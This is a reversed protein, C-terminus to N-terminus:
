RLTTESQSYSEYLQLVDDASLARNYILVEDIGGDFHRGTGNEMAGIAWDKAVEVSGQSKELSALEEGNRYLRWHAGDCTGALHVWTNLDAQADGGSVIEDEGTWSGVEYQADHIRLVVERSAESDFGHALINRYSDTADPRIWAAITITGTFNLAEPNELDIWDDGDFDLAPQDGRKAWTAGHITGDHGNQSGDTAVEGTGEDLSWQGLLTEDIAEPQPQTSDSFVGVKFYRFALSREAEELPGNKMFLGVRSNDVSSNFEGFPQWESDASQKYFVKYRDSEGNETVELKLFVDEIHKVPPDPNLFSVGSDGVNGPGFGQVEVGRDDWENVALSWEMGDQSGGSGDRDPYVVIGGIRPRRGPEGSLRMRTEAFWTQGAEVKPSTVYAIPANDREVWLDATTTTTLVLEDNDEDLTVSAVQPDPVDLMLGPIADLGSETFDSSFHDVISVTTSEAADSDTHESPQAESDGDTESVTTDNDPAPEVPRKGGSQLLVIVIILTVVGAGGYIVLEKWWTKLLRACAATIRSVLSPGTKVKPPPADSPTSAKKAASRSSKPKDKSKPKDEPQPEVVPEPVEVPAPDKQPQAKDDAQPEEPLPAKEDKSLESRLWEDYKTREKPTLLVQRAAAIESLIREGADKRDGTAVSKVYVTLRNAASDIVDEDSEFVTVGLLRYHHRLGSEPPIGLWLYYPDFEDAM